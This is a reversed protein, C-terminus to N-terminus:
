NLIFKYTENHGEYEHFGYIVVAAKAGKFISDAYPDSGVFSPSILVETDYTCKEMGTFSKMNHQHGLILYDINIDHKDSLDTLVTKINKIQHGHMCIINWNPVPLMVYDQYEDSVNVEVHKNNSLLDKIYHGIIYEMDEDMFENPKTGLYRMQSHNSSIIHFYKINAFQSIYNLFQAVIRSVQVTAKTVTSDNIRLDNLHICGQIYDGLGVVYLEKCKHEKIFTEIKEALYEFREQMIEISYANKMSEFKAGAHIDALTLVYQEVNDDEYDNCPNFNLLPLANILSAIQEYYLEQRAEKRDLRNREINLTQLKIKEKKIENLKKDIEKNYNETSKLFSDQYGESYLKYNKRYKSETFKTGLLENLIDAVEQWSGIKDKESCIRNILDKDSENQLRKYDM